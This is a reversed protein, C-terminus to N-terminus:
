QPPAGRLMNERVVEAIKAIWKGLVPVSFFPKLLWLILAVLVTAGIVFGLGRGMGALLNVWFLRLPKRHLDLFYGVGLRELLSNLREVQAHLRSIITRLEGEDEPRSTERGTKPKDRRTNREGHM